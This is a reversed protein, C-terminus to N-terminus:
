HIETSNKEKLQDRLLLKLNSQWFHKDEETSGHSGGTAYVYNDIIYRDWYLLVEHKAKGQYITIQYRPLYPAQWESPIYKNQLVTYNHTTFIRIADNMKPHVSQISDTQLDRIFASDIPTSLWSPKEIPKSQLTGKCLDLFVDQGLVGTLSRNPGLDIFNLQCSDKSTRIYGSVTTPQGNKLLHYSTYYAKKPPRPNRIADLDIGGYSEQVQEVRYLEVTYPPIDWKNLLDQSWIPPTLFLYFICVLLAAKM